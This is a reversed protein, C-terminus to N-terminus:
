CMRRVRWEGGGARSTRGPAPEEGGWQLLPQQGLGKEENWGMNWGLGVRKEFYAPGVRLMLTTPRLTGVGEVVGEVERWIM